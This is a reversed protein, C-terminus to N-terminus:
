IKKPLNEPGKYGEEPPSILHLHGIPVYFTSMMTLWSPFAILVVTSYWRAGTLSGTILLTVFVLHEWPHPPFPARTYQQRSHLKPCGSHFVIYFDRLFYFLPVITHDVLEVKPYKNLSSSFVIKFLYMCRWTWQLTIQLLWSISFRWSDMAPHISLSSTTYTHTYHLKAMFLFLIKGHTVVHISNLLM